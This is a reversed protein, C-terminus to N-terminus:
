GADTAAREHSRQQYQEKAHMRGGGDAGIQEVRGDGLGAAGICALFAVDIPADGAQEGAATNRRGDQGDPCEGKQGFLARGDRVGNRDRQADRQTSVASAM